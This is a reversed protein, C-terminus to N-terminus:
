GPAIGFSFPPEAASDSQLICCKFTAQLSNYNLAQLNAPFNQNFSVVVGLLEHPERGTRTHPALLPCSRHQYQLRNAFGILASHPAHLARDTCAQGPAQALATMALSFPCKSFLSVRLEWAPPNICFTHGRSSDLSISENMRSEIVFQKQDLPLDLRGAVRSSTAKVQDQPEEVSRLATQIVSLPIQYRGLNWM